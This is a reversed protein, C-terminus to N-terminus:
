KREKILKMANDNVELNDSRFYRVNKALKMYDELQLVENTQCDRLVIQDNTKEWIVAHGGGNTWSLCFYGYSGNDYKMLDKEVEKVKTKYDSPDYHTNVLDFEGNYLNTTTNWYNLGKGESNYNAEATVDYGRRRLDYTMTCFACNIQYEKGKKFDPNVFEMDQVETYKTNTKKLSNIAETSQNRNNVHYIDNKTKAIYREDSNVTYRNYKYISQYAFEADDKVEDIFKKVIEKKNGNLLQKYSLNKVISNDTVTNVFRMAKKSEEDFRNISINVKNKVNNVFTKGRLIYKSNQVSILDKKTQNGINSVLKKIHDEGKQVTSKLITKKEVVNKNNLLKNLAQKTNSGINGTIKNFSKKIDNLNVGYTKNPKVTSNTTKNKQAPVKGTKLYSNYEEATYFYIYKNNGNPSDIRKYYKHNPMMAGLDFHCIDNNQYNIKYHSM